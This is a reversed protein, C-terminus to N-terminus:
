KKKRIAKRKGREQRQKAKVVSVLSRSVEVGRGALGVKVETPTADPYLRLFTRVALSKNVSGLSEIPPDLADLKSAAGRSHKTASGNGRRRTTTGM